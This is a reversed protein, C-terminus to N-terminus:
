ARRRLRRRERSTPASLRERGTSASSEAAGPGVKGNRTASTRPGGCGAVGAFTPLLAPASRRTTSSDAGNSMFGSVLSPFPARFDASASGNSTSRRLGPRRTSWNESPRRWAIRETQRRPSVKWGANGEMCARGAKKAARASENPNDGETRAAHVKSEDAFVSESPVKTRLFTVTLPEVRVMPSLLDLASMAPSTSREDPMAPPYTTLSPPYQKWFLEERVPNLDPASSISVPLLANWFQEASVLASRLAEVPSVARDCLMNLLQLFSRRTAIGEVMAVM